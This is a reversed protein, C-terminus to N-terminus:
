AAVGDPVIEFPYANGVAKRMEPKGEAGTFQRYTFRQANRLVEVVARPVSVIAGPVITYMVGNVGVQVRSPLDEHEYIRVRVREQKNLERQKMSVVKGPEPAESDPTVEVGLQKAVLQLVESKSINKRVDLGLEERAYEVLDDRTATNIDIQTNAEM